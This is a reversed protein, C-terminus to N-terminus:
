MWAVTGSCSRSNRGVGHLLSFIERGLALKGRDHEGVHHAEGREGLPVLAM